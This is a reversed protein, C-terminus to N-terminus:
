VSCAVCLCEPHIHTHECMFHWHLPQIVDITGFRFSLSCKLKSFPLLFVTYKSRTPSETSLSLCMGIYKYPKGQRVLQTLCREVITATWKNVQNQNYDDGGIVSEICEKVIADAEESSFSGESVASELHGSVLSTGESVLAGFSAEFESAYKESACHRLKSGIPFFWTVSSTRGVERS